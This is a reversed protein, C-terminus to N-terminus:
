RISQRQLTRNVVASHPAHRQTDVDSSPSEIQHSPLLQRRRDIRRNIEEASHVTKRGDEGDDEDMPQTATDSDFEKKEENDLDDDDDENTDVDMTDDTDDDFPNKKEDDTDVDMGTSLQTPRETRQRKAPRPNDENIRRKAPLITEETNIQPVTKDVQMPQTGTDSETSLQTPRQRKAPRPTKNVRIRPGVRCMRFYGRVICCFRKREVDGFLACVFMIADLIKEEPKGHFLTWSGRRSVGRIEGSDVELDAFLKKGKPSLGVGRCRTTKKNFKYLVLTRFEKEQQYSLPVSGGNNPTVFAVVTERIVTIVKRNSFTEDDPGRGPCL